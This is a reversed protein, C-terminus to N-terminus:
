VAGEVSGLSAELSESSVEPNACSPFLPVLLEYWCSCEEDTFLLLEKGVGM